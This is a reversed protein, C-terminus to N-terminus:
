EPELAALAASAKLEADLRRMAMSAGDHTFFAAVVHAEGEPEDPSTLDTFGIEYWQGDDRAKNLRLWASPAAVIASAVKALRPDNRALM